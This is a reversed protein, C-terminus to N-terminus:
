PGARPLTLLFPNRYGPAVFVPPISKGSLCPRRHWIGPVKEGEGPPDDYGLTYQSHVSVIHWIVSCTDAGVQM